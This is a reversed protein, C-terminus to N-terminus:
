SSVSFNMYLDGELLLYINGDFIIADETPIRCYKGENYFELSDGDTYEVRIKKDGNLIEIDYVYSGHSCGYGDGCDCSDWQLFVNKFLVKANKANAEEIALLYKKEDMYKKDNESPIWGTNELNSGEIDLPILSFAAYLLM